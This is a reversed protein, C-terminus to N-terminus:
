RGTEDIRLGRGSLDSATVSPLPAGPVQFDRGGLKVGLPQILAFTDSELAKAKGVSDSTMWVACGRGPRPLWKQLVNEPNM